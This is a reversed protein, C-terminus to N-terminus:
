SLLKKYNIPLINIIIPSAALSGRKTQPKSVCVLIINM